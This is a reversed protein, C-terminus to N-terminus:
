RANSDWNLETICPDCEFNLLKGACLAKGNRNVHVYALDAEVVMNEGTRNVGTIVIERYDQFGTHQITVGTVRLYVKKDNDCCGCFLLVEKEQKLFSAGKEAQERSLYALQDARASGAVSLIIIVAAIIKKM